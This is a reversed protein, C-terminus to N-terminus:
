PQETKIAQREGFLHMVQTNAPAPVKYKYASEWPSLAYSRGVEGGCNFIFSHRCLLQYNCLPLTAKNAAACLFMQTKPIPSSHKQCKRQPQLRGGLYHNILCARQAAAPWKETRRKKGVEPVGGWFRGRQQHSFCRWQFCAPGSGAALQNNVSGNNM